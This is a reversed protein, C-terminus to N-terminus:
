YMVGSEAKMSSSRKSRPDNILCDSRLAGEAGFGMNEGHKGCNGGKGVNVRFVPTHRGDSYPQPSIALIAVIRTCFHLEGCLDM